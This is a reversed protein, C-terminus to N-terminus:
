RAPVAGCEPCRGPSARLDYGCVPCRGLRRVRRDDLANLTRSAAWLLPLPVTPLVLLWYPVIAVLLRLYVGAVTTEPHNIRALAWSAKADGFAAWLVCVALCIALSLAAFLHFLVRPLKRLM